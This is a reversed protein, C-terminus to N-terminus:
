NIISISQARSKTKSLSPLTIAALFMVAAAAALPVLWRTSRRPPAAFQKPAVTKFHALLQQRRPDGLKLPAPQSVSEDTPSAATQRVLEITRKLLEYLKSLEADREIARGLTFAQDAPLEGLILATLSAELEDRPNRPFDPNMFILFQSNASIGSEHCLETRPSNPLSPKSPTIYCTVSM